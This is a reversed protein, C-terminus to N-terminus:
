VGAAAFELEYFAGDKRVDDECVLDVTSGGFGLRGHELGHLFAVDGHQTPGIREGRGKEDEGGLVWDLLFAGIGKGFGLKVAEHEEDLDVVWTGFFFLADGAFGGSHVLGTEIREEGTLFDNLVLAEDAADRDGIMDVVVGDFDDAAGAGISGISGLPDLFVDTPTGTRTSDLIENEAAFGTGGEASGVHGREFVDFGDGAGDEAVTDEGVESGFGLAHGGFLDDGAEDFLHAIM